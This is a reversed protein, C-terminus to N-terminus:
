EKIDELMRSKLDIAEPGPITDINISKCILLFLFPSCKKVSNLAKDFEAKRSEPVNKYGFKVEDLRIEKWFLNRVEGEFNININSLINFMSWNGQWQKKFSSKMLDNNPTHHFDMLYIISSDKYKYEKSDQPDGAASIWFFEYGKPVDISYWVFQQKDPIYHKLYKRSKRKLSCASLLAVILLLCSFIKIMSYYKLERLM